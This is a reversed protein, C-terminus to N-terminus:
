RRPSEWGAELVITPSGSGTCDLHMTHGNVKYFSGPAHQQAWFVQIAIANYASSIAVVASILVVITLFIREAVKRWTRLPMASLSVMRRIGLWAILIGGAFYLFPLILYDFTM